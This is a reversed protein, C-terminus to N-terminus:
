ETPGGYKVRSGPTSRLPEGSSPANTPERLAEKRILAAAEEFEDAMDRLRTALKDENALFARAARERLKDVAVEMGVARGVKSKRNRDEELPDRLTDADAAIEDPNTSLVNHYGVICALNVCMGHFDAECVSCTYQGRSM